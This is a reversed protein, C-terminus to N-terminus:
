IIKKYITADRVSATATLGSPMLVYKGLPKLANKM